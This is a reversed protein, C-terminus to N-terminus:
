IAGFTIPLILQSSKKKKSFQFETLLKSLASIAKMPRPSNISTDRLTSILLNIKEVRGGPQVNLKFSVFGSLADFLDASQALSEELKSLVKAMEGNTIAGRVVPRPDTFWGHIVFRGDRVDSVGRVDHVGHPIRPDFITLQNFKPAVTEFAQKGELVAGPIQHEWNAALRDTALFTEGGSFLRKDWQTLSYVFALPGHPNDVHIKQGCGEVYCSLWPPSIRSCGLNDEGWQCLELCFSEFLKESFVQWSLARLLMYQGPVNWYDWIFREPTSAMPNEFRREFESRLKKADSFFQNVAMSRFIDKM